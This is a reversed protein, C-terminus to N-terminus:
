LFSSFRFFVMHAFLFCVFRIVLQSQALTFDQAEILKRMRMRRNHFQHVMIKKKLLFM